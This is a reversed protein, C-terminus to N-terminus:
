SWVTCIMSMTSVNRSVVASSTSRYRELTDVRMFSIMFTSVIMAVIKMGNVNMTPTYPMFKLVCAPGSLM